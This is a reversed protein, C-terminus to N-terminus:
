DMLTQLYKAVSQRKALKPMCHQYLSCNDCAKKYEPAPLRGKEFCDYMANATEITKQRLLSSLTVMERRRTKGYFLHGEAVPINFTEELCMGQACLQLRDWDNIKKQGHKYEVPLPQWLGTKGKLVVGKEGRHYEVVDATGYLKLRDSRVPVARSVYIHQRTEQYSPDDAQQHLKQGSYTLVNDQWVNELHILAWQRPCFAFHQIGSLMLYEEQTVYGM